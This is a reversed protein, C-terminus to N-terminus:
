LEPESGSAQGLGDFNLKCIKGKEVRISLAWLVISPVFFNPKFLVDTCHTNYLSRQKCVLRLKWTGIKLHMHRDQFGQLYLFQEFHMYYLEIQHIDKFFPMRLMLMTLQETLKSAYFTQDQYSDPFVRHLQLAMSCNKAM